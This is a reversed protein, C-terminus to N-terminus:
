TGEVIGSNRCTVPGFHEGSKGHGVLDKKQSDGHTSGSWEGASMRGEVTKRLTHTRDPGEAGSEGKQKRGIGGRTRNIHPLPGRRTTDQCAHRLSTVPAELTNVEDVSLSEHYM